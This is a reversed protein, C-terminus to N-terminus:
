VLPVGVVAKVAMLANAGPTKNSIQAMMYNQGFQAIVRINWLIFANLMQLSFYTIHKRGIEKSIDKVLPIFYVNSTAFLLVILLTFLLEKWYPKVFNFIRLYNNKKMNNKTGFAPISGARIHFGNTKSVLADVLEAM